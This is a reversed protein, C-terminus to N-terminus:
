WWRGIESRNWLDSVELLLERTWNEIRNQMAM